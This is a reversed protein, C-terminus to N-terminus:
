KHSTMVARLLAGGEELGVLLVSPVPAVCQIGCARM